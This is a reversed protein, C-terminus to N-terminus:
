AAVAAPWTVSDLARRHTKPMTALPHGLHDSGMAALVAADCMDDNGKTVFLPLRRAIADKVEDKKVNGSGTAYIKLTAQPVEVLPVGIQHILADVVLYYLYAREGAGGSGAKGRALVFKEILVLDATQLHLLITDAQERITMTRVDIPLSTIGDRGATGCWGTNFALGTSTLSIDCGAVRPITM